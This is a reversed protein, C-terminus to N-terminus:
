HGDEPGKWDLVEPDHVWVVRGPHIGKAEGIPQNREPEAAAAALPQAALAAALGAALWVTPTVFRTNMSRNQRNPFRNAM